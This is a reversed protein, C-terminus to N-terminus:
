LGATDTPPGKASPLLLSLHLECCVASRICDPAVLNEQFVLPDIDEEVEPDVETMPISVKLPIQDWPKPSAKQFHEM